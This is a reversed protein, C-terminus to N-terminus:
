QEGRFNEIKESLILYNKKIGVFTVKQLLIPTHGKNNKYLKISSHEM